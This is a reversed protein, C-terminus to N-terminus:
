EYSLAVMPDVKAAKRAPVFCAILSVAGLLLVIAVFTVPDTAARACARLHHRNSAFGGYDLRASHLQPRCGASTATCPNPM